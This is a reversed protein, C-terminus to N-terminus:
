LRPHMAAQAIVRAADAQTHAFLLLGVRTIAGVFEGDEVVPLQWLGDTMMRTFVPAIPEDPQVPTLSAVPQMVEGAHTTTWQKRPVRLIEEMSLLGVAHGAEVVPFSLQHSPVAVQDVVADLTLQSPVRPSDTAMAERVRHGALLDEVVLDQVSAAAASHLFWGIFVIWLGNAWSGGFVSWVGWGILALGIYRGVTAALRTARRPDGTVSWVIARFVRGGDLPFGPVLNFLGLVLNIWALWGAIAHVFDLRGRSVLWLAGFLGACLLSTAPGALAMLLEERPRRPEGQLETVGGFFFLTISRVPRGFRRSVLGHSLEHALISLFFLAATLVGALLYAAGGWGPHATPFYHGALSWTILVAIFFWSTDVKVEIGFIRGLKLTRGVM